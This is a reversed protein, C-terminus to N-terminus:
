SASSRSVATARVRGADVIGAEFGAQQKRM